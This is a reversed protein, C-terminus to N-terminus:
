TAVEMGFLDMQGKARMLDVPLQEWSIMEELLLSTERRDLQAFPKRFKEVCHGDLLANPLHLKKQLARVYSIQPDSPPNLIM